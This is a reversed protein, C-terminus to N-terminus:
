RGLMWETESVKRSVERLMEVYGSLEMMNLNNFTFYFIYKLGKAVITTQLRCGCSSRHPRTDDTSPMRSVDQTSAHRRYVVGVHGGTHVLTAYLRRCRSVVQGHAGCHEYAFNRIFSFVTIHSRTDDGAEFYIV